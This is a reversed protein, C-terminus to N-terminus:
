FAEGGVAPRGAALEGREQTRAVGAVVAIGGEGGEGAADTADDVEGTVDVQRGVGLWRFPVLHGREQAAGRGFDGRSVTVGRREGPDVAIGDGEQDDVAGGVVDHGDIL